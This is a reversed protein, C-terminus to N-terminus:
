QLNNILTKILKVQCQETLIDYCLMIFYNIWANYLYQIITHCHICIKKIFNINIRAGKNTKNIISNRASLDFHKYVDSKKTSM